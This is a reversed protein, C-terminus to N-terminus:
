QAPPSSAASTPGSPVAFNQTLYDEIIKMEDPTVVAGRDAMTGVTTAWEDPTKRKDIITYLDHCSVCSRQILELGPGPPPGAPATQQALLPGGACLLLMSAQSAAKRWTLM